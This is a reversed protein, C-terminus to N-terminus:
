WAYIASTYLRFFFNFVGNFPFSLKKLNYPIVKKTKRLIFLLIKLLIFTTPINNQRKNFLILYCQASFFVVLFRAITHGM